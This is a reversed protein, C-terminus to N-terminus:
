DILFSISVTCVIEKEISTVDNMGYDSVEQSHLPRIQFVGVKASTPAGISKGTTNALQEARLKANETAARIMEIKADELKTYIYRINQYGLNVGKELLASTQQGLRSIRPVDALSVKVQQILNYNAPRGERDYNQNVQVAGIECKTEDFGNEGLFVKTLDLDRKMKAYGSAVDVSTTQISAEWIAYDSTIPKFAAGTVQVTQGTRKVSIITNRVILACLILALGIILPPIPQIRLNYTSESKTDM